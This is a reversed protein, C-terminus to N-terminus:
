LLTNFSLLTACGDEILTYCKKAHPWMWLPYFVVILGGDQSNLLKKLPFRNCIGMSGFTFLCKLIRTQTKVLYVSCTLRHCSSYNEIICNKICLIKRGRFYIAQGISHDHNLECYNFPYRMCTMFYKIRFQSRYHKIEANDCELVSLYSDNIM